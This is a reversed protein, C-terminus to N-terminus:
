TRRREYGFRPELFEALPGTLTKAPRAFAREFVRIHEHFRGMAHDHSLAEVLLAVGDERDSLKSLVSADLDIREATRSKGRLQQHQIGARQALWSRGEEGTAIFIVPPWPSAIRRRCGQAVAVMNAALEIAREAAGRQKAPVVVEGASTLNPRYELEVAAGVLLKLSEASEYASVPSVDVDGMRMAWERWASPKPTFVVLALRVLVLDRAAFGCHELTTRALLGVPRTDSDSHEATQATVDSGVPLDEPQRRASEHRSRRSQWAQGAFSQTARRRGLVAPTVQYFRPKAERSLQGGSIRKM